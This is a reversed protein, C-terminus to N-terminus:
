GIKRTHELKSLNAEEAQTDHIGFDSQLSGLLPFAARVILLPLASWALLLVPAFPTTHDFLESGAHLLRRTM